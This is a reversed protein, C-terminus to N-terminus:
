LNNGTPTYFIKKDFFLLLPKAAAIQGTLQVKNEQKRRV